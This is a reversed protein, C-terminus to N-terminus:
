RRGATVLRGRVAVGVRRGDLVGVAVAVGRGDLVGRDGRGPRGRRGVGGRDRRGPRGRRRRGWGDRRGPCGWRRRGWGDRGGPGRRRRGRRRVTVRVRVGVTVRGRGHMGGGGLIVAQYGRSSGTPGTAASRTAPLLPVVEGPGDGEGTLDGPGEAEVADVLKHPDGGGGGDVEAGAVEGNVGPDAGALALPRGHEEVLASERGDAIYNSSTM